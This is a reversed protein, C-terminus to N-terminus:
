NLARPSGDKDMLRPSGDDMFPEPLNNTHEDPVDEVNLGHPAAAFGAIQAARLFYETPTKGGKGSAFRTHTTGQVQNDAIVMQDSDKAEIVLYIHDAGPVDDAMSFCVGVDGPQQDGVKIRNWHRNVRLRDALNQAGATVPLNIGAQILFHSLTAACSKKPYTIGIGQMTKAALAQVKKISEPDSGLQILKAIHDGDASTQPM